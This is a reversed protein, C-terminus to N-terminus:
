SVLRTRGNLAIALGSAATKICYSVDPTLASLEQIAVHEANTLDSYTGFRKANVVLDGAGNTWVTVPTSATNCVQRGYLEVAEQVALRHAGSTFNDKNALNPNLAAPLVIRAAEHELYALIGVACGYYSDVDVGFINELYVATHSKSRDAVFSRPDRLRDCFEDAADQQLARLAEM